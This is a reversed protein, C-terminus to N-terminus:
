FHDLSILVVSGECWVHPSYIDKTLPFNLHLCTARLAGHCNSAPSCPYVRPAMLLNLAKGWLFSIAGGSKLDLKGKLTMTRSKPCSCNIFQEM